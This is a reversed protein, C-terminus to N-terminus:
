NPRYIKDCIIYSCAFLMIHVGKSSSECRADLSNVPFIHGQPRPSIGRIGNLAIITTSVAKCQGQIM